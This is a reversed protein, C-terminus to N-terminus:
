PSPYSGGCPVNTGAIIYARVHEVKSLGTTCFSYVSGPLNTAPGFMVWTFGVAPSYIHEITNPDLRSADTRTRWTGVKKRQDVAHNPGLKYDFLDGGSVHAEQFRDDVSGPYGPKIPRGCVTNDTVLANIQAVTLATGTCGQALVPAAAAASMLLATLQLLRM